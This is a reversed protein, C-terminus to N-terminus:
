SGYWNHYRLTRIENESTLNGLQKELWL